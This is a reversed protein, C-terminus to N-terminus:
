SSLRFKLYVKERWNFTLQHDYKILIQISKLTYTFSISSYRLIQIRTRKVILIIQIDSSPLSGKNKPHRRVDYHMLFIQRIRRLSWHLEVNNKTRHKIKESFGSAFSQYRRSSSITWEEHSQREWIHWKMVTGLFSRNSKEHSDSFNLTSRREKKKRKESSTLTFSQYDDRRSETKRTHRM